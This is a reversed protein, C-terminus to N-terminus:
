ASRALTNSDDLLYAIKGLVKSRVALPNSGPFFEVELVDIRAVKVPPTVDPELDEGSTSAIECAEAFAERVALPVSDSDVTFGDEDTVNYRPWALAQTELTKNGKWRTRWRAEMYRTARRAAEEKLADTALANFTSSGVELLYAAANAISDYAEATSKGTGDEVVLAM